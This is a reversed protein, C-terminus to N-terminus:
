FDLTIPEIAFAYEVVVGVPDCRADVGTLEGLDAHPMIRPAAARLPRLM